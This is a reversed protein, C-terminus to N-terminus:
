KRKITFLPVAWFTVRDDIKVNGYVQWGVVIRIAGLHLSYRWVDGNAWFGSTEPTYEHTEKGLLKALGMAVNREGAWLFSCAWKGYSELWKVVTPENLGGPFREDPTQYVDKFIRMDGRTTISYEGGDGGASPTDDWKISAWAVVFGVFPITLLILEPLKFYWACAVVILTVSARTFVGFLAIILGLIPTIIYTM